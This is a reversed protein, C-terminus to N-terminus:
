NIKLLKINIFMDMVLKSVNGFATATGEQAFPSFTSSGWNGNSDFNTYTTTGNNGASSWVNDWWNGSRGDPNTIKNIKSQLDLDDLNYKDNNKM